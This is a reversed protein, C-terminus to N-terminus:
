GAIISAIFDNFREPASRTLLRDWHVSAARNWM